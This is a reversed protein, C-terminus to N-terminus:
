FVDNLPVRFGPLLPSEYVDSGTLVREAYGDPEHSLVTVKRDFRDIIVYERVGFEFYEGRKEVYDRTRDSSSPSVIEFVLEPVRGPRPPPSHGGTPRLYVAIDAVRDIQDKLFLWAETAVQEVIPRHAWMYFILRDRWPDSSADHAESDPYMVVLRGGVREYKWPEDFTAEAFEEATLPRGDDGRGLHLITQGTPV